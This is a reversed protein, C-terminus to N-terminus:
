EEILTSDAFAYALILNRTVETESRIKERLAEDILNTNVSNRFDKVRYEDLDDPLAFTISLNSNDKDLSLSSPAIDAVRYCVGKIVDISFLSTDVDVIIDM